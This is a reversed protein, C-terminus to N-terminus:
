GIESPRPLHRTALSGMAGAALQHARSVDATAFPILDVADMAGAGVLEDLEARGEVSSSPRHGLVSELDDLEAEALAESGIRDLERLHKVVRALSKLRQAAFPDAIAPSILDKMQQLMGDFYATQATDRAPMSGLDPRPEGVATCLAELTLRRHLAGYILGSGLDGMPSPGGAAARETGLVGIRVEAFLSHYRFRKGDFAVGGAEAYQSLFVDFDPVPDQANRTGVWALDEMPDGLHALEFDVLATVRHGDHLFNGPGTDGQVLSPLGGVDPLNQRLWLFCARLFPNPASVARFRSEWIDLEEVVHDTISRVPALSPLEMKAPDTAHLRALLPAFDAVVAAQAALDLPAFRADGQVYAMLVAEHVPHVGLIKPVPLGATAVAAYIESERRLTYHEHAGPKASDARLFWMGGNEGRVAWAGHRGGGPQRQIDRIPEGTLEQAWIALEAIREPAATSM